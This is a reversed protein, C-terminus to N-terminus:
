KKIGDPQDDEYYGMTKQMKYRVYRLDNEVQLLKKMLNSKVLERAQPKLKCLVAMYGRKGPNEVFEIFDNYTQVLTEIM